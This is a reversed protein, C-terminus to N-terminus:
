SAAGGFLKDLEAKSVGQQILRNRLDPSIKGSCEHHGIVEIVKGNADHKHEDTIFSWLMNGVVQKGEVGTAEFIEMYRRSGDDLQAKYCMIPWAEILMGLLQEESLQPAAPTCMALLRRYAQRAGNAHLSTLITHGTNGAQMAEYAAIDRVEVPVLVDMDYRLSSKILRGMTYGSDESTTNYLVSPKRGDPRESEDLQIERSDEILYIRDNWRKNKRIYENLLFGQDTTKGSGTSGAIGMSVGHTLCLVLFDLAKEDITGEDLLQRRTIKSASQKRISATVARDAPVLPAITASIRIGGGIFSDVNPTVADLLKRGIRAMKKVVDIAEQPSAFGHKLRQSGEHYKIEIDYWSNINIEEVYPDHMYRTIIGMGAMDDFLRDILDEIPIDELMLSNEAVSKAILTRIITRDQDSGLLYRMLEDNHQESIDRRVADLIEAYTAPKVSPVPNREDMNEHGSCTFDQLFNLANYGRVLSDM